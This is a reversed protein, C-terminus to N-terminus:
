IIRSWIFPKFSSLRMKGNESHKGKLLFVIWSGNLEAQFTLLSGACEFVVTADPLGSVLDNQM